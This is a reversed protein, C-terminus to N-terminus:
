IHQKTNCYVVNALLRLCQPQLLQLFFKRIDENSLRKHTSAFAIYIIKQHHRYIMQIEASGYSATVCLYCFMQVHQSNYFTNM